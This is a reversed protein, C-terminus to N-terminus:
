HISSFVCSCRKHNNWYQYDENGAGLGGFNNAGLILDIDGDSDYDAAEMVLWRSVTTSPMRYPKFGYDGENEFYLFGRDPANEFDPFFSIAAIDLDGDNDYDRAMAMSAGPM